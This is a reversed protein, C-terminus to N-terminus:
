AAKLKGSMAHVAAANLPQGGIAWNGQEVEVIRVWTVQRLEEGEVEIMAETVKEILERKKAPSFVDKIVDITVLPM